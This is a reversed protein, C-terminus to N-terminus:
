CTEKIVKLETVLSFTESNPLQISSLIYTHFFSNLFYSKGIKRLSRKLKLSTTQPIKQTSQVARGSIQFAM